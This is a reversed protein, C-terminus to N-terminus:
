IYKATTGMARNQLYRVKKSNFSKKLAKVTPKYLHLICYITVVKTIELNGWPLKPDKKDIHLQQVKVIIPLKVFQRFQSTIKTLEKCYTTKADM